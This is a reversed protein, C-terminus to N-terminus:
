FNLTVPLITSGCCGSQLSGCDQFRARFIAQQNSSQIADARIVIQGRKDKRDPEILDTTFTQQRAGMINGLTTECIGIEDGSGSNDDADIMVFKLKQVKEFYYNMTIKQTFDPNLNNKKMETM